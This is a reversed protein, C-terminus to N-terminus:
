TISLVTNKAVLATHMALKELLWMGFMKKTLVKSSFTKCLRSVMALKEADRNTVDNEANNEVNDQM